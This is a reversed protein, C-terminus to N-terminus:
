IGADTSIALTVAFPVPCELMATKGKEMSEVDDRATPRQNKWRNRLGDAWGVLRYYFWINRRIPGSM